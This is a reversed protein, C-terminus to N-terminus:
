YIFIINIIIVIAIYTLYQPANAFIMVLVIFKWQRSSDIVSLVNLSAPNDVGYPM